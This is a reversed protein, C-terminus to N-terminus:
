PLRFTTCYCYSSSMGRILLVLFFLTLISSFCLCLFVMNIRGRAWCKLRIRGGIFPWGNDGRQCGLAEEKTSGLYSTGSRLTTPLNAFTLCQRCGCRRLGAVSLRHPFLYFHIHTTGWLSPQSLFNLFTSLAEPENSLLPWFYIHPGTPRAKMIPQQTLKWSTKWLTRELATGSLWKCM